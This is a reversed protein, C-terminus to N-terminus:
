FFCRHYLISISVGAQEAGELLDMMGKEWDDEFGIELPRRSNQEFWRESIPGLDQLGTIVTPVLRHSSM